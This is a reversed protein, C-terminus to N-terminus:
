NERPLTSFLDNENLPRGGIKIMINNAFKLADKAPVYTMISFYYESDKYFDKGYANDLTAQLRDQDKNFYIDQLENEPIKSMMQQIIKVLLPYGINTDVGMNEKLVKRAYYETLGEEFFQPLSREDSVYSTYHLYEHSLTALYEVVSKSGTFDLAIKITKEKPQFLGLEQPTSDKQSAVLEKYTTLTTKAETYQPLQSQDYQLSEQWDTINKQYQAIIQDWKARDADCEQQTYYHYFGLYYSNYGATICYNYDIDKQRISTNLGDQNTAIKQKDNSINGYIRNIVTTITKILDDIETLYSNIQDERFKLYDQRGLVEVTPEDKIFRNTFYEKVLLKGLVPSIAEMQDKELSNIILNDGYMILPDNPVGISVTLNSPISKIVYQTYYNGRSNNKISDTLIIKANFNQGGDTVSPAHDMKKLKELVNDKGWIIGASEPNSKVKFGLLNAEAIGYLFTTGLSLHFALVLAITLLGITKVRSIPYNQSSFKKNLRNKIFPIVAIVIVASSILLIGDTKILDLYSKYYTLLINGSDTFPLKFVSFYTLLLLFGIFVLFIPSLILFLLLSKPNSFDINKKFDKRTKKFDLPNTQYKGKNLFKPLGLRINKNLFPNPVAFIVSFVLTIGSLIYYFQDHYSIGFYLFLLPLTFILFPLLRKHRM